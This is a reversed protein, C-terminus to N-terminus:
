LTYFDQILIQVNKLVTYRYSECKYKIYIYFVKKGVIATQSYNNM